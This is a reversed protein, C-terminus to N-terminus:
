PWFFVVKWKGADSAETIRTFAQAPDTSVVAAVDFAPLRDGITLMISEGQNLTTSAFIQQVFRM